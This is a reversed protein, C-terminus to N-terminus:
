LFMVQLTMKYGLVSGFERGLLHPSKPDKPFYKRVHLCLLYERRYHIQHQVSPQLRFSLGLPERNKMLPRLPNYLFWMLEDLLFFVSSFVWLARRLVAILSIAILHIGVLLSVSPIILPHIEIM